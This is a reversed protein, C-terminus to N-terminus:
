SSTLSYNGKGGEQRERKDGRRLQLENVVPISLLYLSVAEEWSLARM